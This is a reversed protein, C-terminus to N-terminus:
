LCIHKKVMLSSIEGKQIIQATGMVVEKQLFSASSIGTYQTAM